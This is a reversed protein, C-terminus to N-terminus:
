LSGHFYVVLEPQGSVLSRHWADIVAANALTASEETLASRHTSDVVARAFVEAQAVFHNTAPVVIQELTAFHAGRWLRISADRDPLLTFPRELEIVGDYGIIRAHQYFGGVFSVNIHAQRVGSYRVVSTSLIDARNKEDFVAEGWIQTPLVPMLRNVLNVGYCGIDFIAGAGVHEVLRIDHPDDQRYGFAVQVQRVEGIAGSAVLAEVQQTQPHNRYMMAEMVVRNCQRAVQQLEAVETATCAMPKEVLVHKGARLAALAVPAHLHNPLAVYVADIDPNRWVDEIDAYVTKVGLEQALTTAAETRRAWLAVLHVSPAQRMALGVKRAIRGAGIIGWRLRM